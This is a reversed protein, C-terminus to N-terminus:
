LLSRVSERSDMALYLIHMCPDAVTAVDQLTAGTSFV